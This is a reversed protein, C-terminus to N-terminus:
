TKVPKVLIRCGLVMVMVDIPSMSVFTEFKSFFADGLGPTDMLILCCGVTQEWMKGFQGKFPLISGCFDANLSTFIIDATIFLSM